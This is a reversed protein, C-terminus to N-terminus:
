DAAAGKAIATRWKKGILRIADDLERDSWALNPPRKFAAAAYDRWDAYARVVGRDILKLWIANLVAHREFSRMAAADTPNGLAKLAAAVPWRVGAREAIAKLGEIVSLAARHDLFRLSSVGAQRLVFADLARENPEPVEGLWYLTWWLARVKAQHPRAQWDGLSRGGADRNLRDLVKGIEAGDMDAMSAKGTVEIQIAKRDDDDIGRRKAAARVAGILKRRSDAKGDATKLSASAISAFSRAM